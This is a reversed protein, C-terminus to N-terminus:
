NLLFTLSSGIFYQINNENFTTLNNTNFHFIYNNLTSVLHLIYITCSFDLCLKTRQVVYWLGVSSFLLMLLNNPQFLFLM